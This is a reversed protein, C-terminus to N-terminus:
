MVVDMSDSSDQSISPLVKGSSDERAVWSGGALRAPATKHSSSSSVRKGSTGRREQRERDMKNKKNKRLTFM